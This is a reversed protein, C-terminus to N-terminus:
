LFLMPDLSEAGRRVEFHMRPEGSATNAVVGIQQGSQVRDGKAVTVSDIRGYVTLLDNQHRVLVITGLGGLSQSVLAVEGDAAAVVPAGAPAAFDVGDNRAPGAGKNFAIAVPGDVPKRMSVNPPAVAAVQTGAAAPGAAPAPSASEPRIPPQVVANTGGAGTQYQGLLPSALERRPEPEPPVPEASSPPAGLSGDPNLGTSRDIAAEALAPSWAGSAAGPEASPPQSLGPEASPSLPPLPSAPETAAPVSLGPQAGPLPTQEIGGAPAPAAALATGGTGYGGPRPPLVLEDGRRMQHSPTLGNYAALESGSLGVRDALQAVTEGDNAVVTQYTEYSVIGGRGPSASQGAPATAVAAPAGTAPDTGRIEVEAPPGSRQSCAAAGVLLLAPGMRRLCATFCPTM